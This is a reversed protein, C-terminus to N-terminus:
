YTELVFEIFRVNQKISEDSLKMGTQVDRGNLMVNLLDNKETPHAQRDDLVSFTGM